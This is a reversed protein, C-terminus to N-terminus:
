KKGSMDHKVRNKGAIELVIADRNSSNVWHKVSSTQQLSNLIDAPLRWNIEEYCTVVQAATATEHALIDVIYYVSIVNKEDNNSPQKEEVFAKFSQKNSPRLNLSRDASISTVKKKINAKKSSSSSRSVSEGLKSSKGETIVTNYSLKLDLSEMLVNFAQKQVEESAFSNIVEAMKPLKELLNEFNTNDM